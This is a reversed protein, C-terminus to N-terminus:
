DPLNIWNLLNADANKTTKTEVKSMYLKRSRRPLKNMRKKKKKM